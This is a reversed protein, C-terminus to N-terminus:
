FDNPTVVDRIDHNPDLGKHSDLLIDYNRTRQILRVLVLFLDAYALREGLCVRRGLGFPIFSPLRKLIYKGDSDIFRDPRFDMGDGGSWHKDSDNSLIYGQFVGIATNKPVTYQGLKTTVMTKHSVGFPAANRYRLTESIVAMTYHCRDRDAHGPLHDGCISDIEQRVRQQVDPYYALLLLLWQFTIQSTDVGAFFVDFVTMSLNADTLYPASEKSQHVAEDATAILADCFDREIDPQYDHRHDLFKQQILQRLSVFHHKYHNFLDPRYLWRFIPAWEWLVFCNGTEFELDYFTYKIQRFEPDDLTYSQGFVSSAIINLFTLYIYEIPNFPKDPGMSDLM